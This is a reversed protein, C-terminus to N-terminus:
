EQESSNVKKKFYEKICILCNRDKTNMKCLDMNYRGDYEAPCNIVVELSAYDYITKAMEDIIKDKKEIEQVLDEYIEEHKNEINEKYKSFRKLQREKRNKLNEIEKQQRKFQGEYSKVTNILKNLEKQKENLIALEEKQNNRKEIQHELECELQYKEKGLDQYDRYIGDIEKQKKEILNLVTDIAKSNKTNIYKKDINSKIIKLQEIAQKEAETM